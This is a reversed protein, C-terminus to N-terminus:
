LLEINAYGMARLTNLIVATDDTTVNPIKISIDVDDVNVVTDTKIWDEAIVLENEYQDEFFIYKAEKAPVLFLGTEVTLQSRITIVDNFVGSYKVAQRLGGFGVVKLGRYEPKLITSSITNFNYVKFLDFIM